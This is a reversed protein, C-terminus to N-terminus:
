DLRQVPHSRHSWYMQRSAYPLEAVITGVIANERNAYLTAVDLLIGARILPPVAEASGYGAVFRVVIAGQQDYLAPWSGNVPLGIRGRRRRSGSQVVYDTTATLTTLVGATNYYKVHTVSVLPPRPLDIYGECPWADLTLDWTQTLLARGTAIEARETAAPILVVGLYGDDVPGGQQVQHKVEDLSVPFGVPPTFLTLPM